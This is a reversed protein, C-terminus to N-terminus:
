IWYFSKLRIINKKKNYKIYKTNINYEFQINYKEHKSYVRENEMIIGLSFFVNVNERRSNKDYGIYKTNMLFSIFVHINIKIKKYCVCVCM